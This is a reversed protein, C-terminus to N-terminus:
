EFNTMRFECKWHNEREHKKWQEGTQHGKAQWRRSRATPQQDARSQNVRHQRRCKPFYRRGRCEVAPECEIGRSQQEQADGAPQKEDRGNVRRAIEALLRVAVVCVRLFTQQEIIRGFCNENATQKQKQRRHRQHRDTLVEAQDPHGDLSCGQGARRQNIIVTVVAREFGGPFIKQDAGDANRQRQEGIEKEAHRCRIRVTFTIWDNKRLEDGMRM